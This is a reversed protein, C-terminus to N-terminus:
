AVAPDGALERSFADVRLDMETVFDLQQQLLALRQTYGILTGTMDAVKSSMGVGARDDEVLQQSFAANAMVQEYRDRLGNREREVEARIDALSQQLRQLRGSDTDRDRDPDRTRFRFLAM